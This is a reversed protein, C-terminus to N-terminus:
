VYESKTKTLTKGSTKKNDLAYNKDLGYKEATAIDYSILGLEPLLQKTKENFKYNMDQVENNTDYILQEGGELVFVLNPEIILSAIGANILKSCYLMNDVISFELENDKTYAILVINQENM